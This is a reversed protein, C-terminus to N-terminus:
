YFCTKFSTRGRQFLLVVSELVAPETELPVTRGGQGSLWGPDGSEPQTRSGVGWRIGAWWQPHPVWLLSVPPCQLVQERKQALPRSLLTKVEQAWPSLTMGVVSPELLYRSFSWSFSCLHHCPCPILAPLSRPLGISIKMIMKIVWMQLM